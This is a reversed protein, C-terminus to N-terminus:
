AHDELGIWETEAHGELWMAKAEALRLAAARFQNPHIADAPAKGVRIEHANAERLLAAIDGESAYPVTPQDDGAQGYMPDNPRLYPPTRLREELREILRAQRQNERRQWEIEAATDDTAQVLEGTHLHVLKM